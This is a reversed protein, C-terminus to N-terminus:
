NVLNEILMRNLEDPARLMQGLLTKFLPRGKRYLINGKATPM